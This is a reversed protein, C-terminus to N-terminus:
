ALNAMEPPKEVAKESLSNENKRLRRSFRRIDLITLVLNCDFYYNQNGSLVEDGRRLHPDLSKTVRHYFQIGACRVSHRVAQKSKLKTRIQLNGAQDCSPIFRPGKPGRQKEAQFYRRKGKANKFIQKGTRFNRRNFGGSDNVFGPRKAIAKVLHISLERM